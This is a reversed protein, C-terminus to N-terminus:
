ESIGYRTRTYGDQQNTRAVICRLTLNPRNLVARIRHERRAATDVKGYLADLEGILRDSTYPLTESEIWETVGDKAGYIIVGDGDFTPDSYHAYCLKASPDSTYHFYYGRRNTAALLQGMGQALERSV